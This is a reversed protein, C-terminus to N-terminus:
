GVQKYQSYNKEWRRYVKTDGDICWHDGKAQHTKREEKQQKESGLDSKQQKLRLPLM